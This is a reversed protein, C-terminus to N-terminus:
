LEANLTFYDDATNPNAEATAAATVQIFMSFGSPGIGAAGPQGCNSANWTGLKAVTPAVRMTTPLGIPMIIYQGAANYGQMRPWNGTPGVEQYYRQCRLVTEPQPLQEFETAVSGFELQFDKINLTNGAAMFNSASSHSIVNTALWTNLSAANYTTGTALGIAVELGKGTDYLWTGATDGPITFTFRQRTTTVAFTAVWSRNNASNRIALTLTFSANAWADFSVTISKAQAGGWNLGRLMLGEIAQGILYYDAAVLAADAVGVTVAM